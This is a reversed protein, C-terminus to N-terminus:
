ANGGGELLDNATDDHHDTCKHYHMFLFPDISCGKPNDIVDKAGGFIKQPFRNDPRFYSIVYHLHTSTLNYFDNVYQGIEYLVGMGARRGALKDAAHHHFLWTNEHLHIMSIHARIHGKDLYVFHRAIEPHHLYLKEYTEKFTQKQNSISAYKQPYIFGPKSFSVGCIMWIWGPAYQPGPIM